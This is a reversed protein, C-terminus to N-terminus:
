KAEQLVSQTVGSFGTPALGREQIGKTSLAQNQAAQNAAQAVKNRQIEANRERAQAEIQRRRNQMDLRNKLANSERARRGAKVNAANSTIAAAGASFAASVLMPVAAAM